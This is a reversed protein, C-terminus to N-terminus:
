STRQQTSLRRLGDLAAQADVRRGGDYFVLDGALIASVREHFPMRLFEALNLSLERGDVHLVVRDFPPRAPATM